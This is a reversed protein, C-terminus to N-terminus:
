EWNNTEICGRWVQRAYRWDTMGTEYADDPLRVWTCEATKKNAFLFMFERDPFAELYAAAQVDYRYNWCAELIEPLTDSSTSKVDVIADAYLVDLKVKCDVGDVRWERKTQSDEWPRLESRIAQAVTEAACIEHPLHAIRYGKELEDREKRAAPSWWEYPLEVIEPGKGFVLRDILTGERMAKTSPQSIGGNLVYHADRAAEPGDKLLKIATSPSFYVTKGNIQM